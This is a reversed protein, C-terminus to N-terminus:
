GKEVTEGASTGVLTKLENTLATYGGSGRYMRKANELSQNGRVGPAKVSRWDFTALKGAVEQIYRHFSQQCISALAEDVDVEDTEGEDYEAIKWSQLKREDATEYLLDNLVSHIARVGMDQNLLSAPDSFPSRSEQSFAAVWEFDTSENVAQELLCWFEVLLAIQQSRKWGLPEANEGIGAQFLGKRTNTGRGTGFMSTTLSRVFAAQSVGGAGSEGLMNIRGQWSSKDYKNLWETIEQSRAERYVTLDGTGDLWEQNRLLPYLDFAHSRNIRKPSVNISWFLYAQWAIGLGHFAVVPLDYNKDYDADFAWLRHQGDIVEFPRLGDSELLKPDPLEISIGSSNSSIKAAIDNGVILEGRADGEELINIVIATPLWGPKKLHENEPTRFESKLDGYPYGYKVYESIRHTRKEDRRRQIGNAADDSRTRRFVNCYKRLEAAPMTFMYAHRDPIKNNAGTGLEFEDWESLWQKFRIAHIHSVTM